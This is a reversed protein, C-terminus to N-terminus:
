LTKREKCRHGQMEVRPKQGQFGGYVTTNHKVKTIERLKPSSVIELALENNWWSAAGSDREAASSLRSGERGSNFGFGFIVEESSSSRVKMM